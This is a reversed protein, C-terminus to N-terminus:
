GPPLPGLNMRRERQAIAREILEALEEAPRPYVYRELGRPEYVSALTGDVVTGLVRAIGGVDEPAVVVGTGTEQVIKAAANGHALALIPRGATLYDFLKGPADSIHESGTLLLLADAERQLAAAAGRSLTGMHEVAGDLDLGELLRQENTDLRGALVVRLRAATAPDEAALRRMAAFVPRPDRGRPGSLTGTYVVNVRDHALAPHVADSAQEGVTPNWGNPVYASLAGLRTCADEVTPRHVAVVLDAARLARRELMADLRDQARTPWTHLPEYHWGDRLDAIWAPRRRGLMLALLHTSHPPGTTVVCDIERERMVRRARALATPCWTLLCEDPVVVETLWWPPPKHVTSALEAPLTPSRRLLRRAAGLAGVDFTREVWPESGGSGGSLRSTIVTVEYGARRLWESMASWRAGGISPDPPYYYSFVLLRRAPM